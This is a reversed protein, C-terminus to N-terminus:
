RRASAENQPVGRPVRGARIESLARDFLRLGMPALERAWLAAPTDDARIFCFEQAVIPGTWPQGVSWSLTGGTVLQGDSFAQGLANPSRYLPLLAPHFSLAGLARSCMCEHGPDTCLILDVPWPPPEAWPSRSVVDFGLGRALACVNNGLDGCTHVHVRM